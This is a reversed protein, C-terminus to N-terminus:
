IRPTAETVSRGDTCDPAPAQAGATLRLDGEWLAPSTSPTVLPENNDGERWTSGFGAIPSHPGLLTVLRRKNKIQFIVTCLGRRQVRATSLVLAYQGPDSLNKCVDKAVNGIVVDGFRVVRLVRRHSGATIGM